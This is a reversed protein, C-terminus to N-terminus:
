LFLFDDAFQIVEINVLTDTGENGSTVREVKTQDGQTLVKYDDRNGQFIAYDWGAGGDLFDDSGGGALRDVGGNGRLTDEGYLGRLVNRGEDGHLTDDYSSGTVREVSTYSDRAADGQTGRGQSLFVSVASTSASYSIMDLGSGGDYRDCGASGVFWDYSGLGLLDLGRCRGDSPGSLFLWSVNSTKIGTAM